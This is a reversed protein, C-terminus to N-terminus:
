KGGKNRKRELYERGVKTKAALLDSGPRALERMTKAAEGVPVLLKSFASDSKAKEKVEEPLGNSYIAGYNISFGAETMPPGLYIVKEGKKEGRPPPPPVPKAPPKDNKKIEEPM